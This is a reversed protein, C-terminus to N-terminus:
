FSFTLTLTTINGQTSNRSEFEWLSRLSVQAKYKTIAVNIEPGAAFTRYKKKSAGPGKDDTVQWSCYGAAGAQWYKAFRKGLGWEFHFHDGPTKHTQKQKTHVEYHTMVSASWTKKEDLYVTAGLNPMFTWFGKGPSAPDRSNYRGTPMFIGTAFSLDYRDGSWSLMFPDVYLDSLGGSSREMGLHLSSVNFIDPLNYLTKGVSVDTYVLPVIIDAGFKAGLIKFDSIRHNEM